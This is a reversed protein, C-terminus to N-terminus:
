GGHGSFRDLNDLPDVTLWASGVALLKSRSHGGQGCRTLEGRLRPGDSARGRKPNLLRQAEVRSIHLRGVNEPIADRGSFCRAGSTVGSM